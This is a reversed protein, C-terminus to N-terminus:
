QESGPFSRGFEADSGPLISREGPYTGNLHAGGEPRLDFMARTLSGSM